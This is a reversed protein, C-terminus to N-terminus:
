PAKASGADAAKPLPAPNDSLTNLYAIVDARTQPRTIGGFTMKTGTVFAQPKTLFQNLDDVTWTGGMSKMGSSYDFGAMTARTRGVVGWLNPGIKAPGGKEFTHCAQCVKAADEGRKPDASALLQAVPPEKEAPAPQTASETKPVVINFGPKEPKEPAFIAGSAINLAVVILATGLIAGLIKNMEFSDM